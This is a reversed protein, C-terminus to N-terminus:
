LALLYSELDTLEPPSLQSADGHVGAATTAAQNVRASVTLISGDHLYPATRGLGLLSPTNVAQLAPWPTDPTNDIPLGNGGQEVLVVNELLDDPHLTGVNHVQNDTLVDGSHCTSCQAKVFAARGPSTDQTPLVNTHLPNDAAPMGEIFATLNASDTDSLGLKGDTRSGAGGMRGVITETFFDNLQPFISAWHYPATQALARGALSPTQRKGDPFQWVHGDERGDLHCSACALATTSSTMRPDIASFFMRRGLAADSSLTEGALPVTATVALSAVSQGPNASGAPTPTPGTNATTNTPNSSNENKLLSLTHDFQSYVYLTTGDNSLALGDPGAGVPTVLPDPDGAGRSTPLVLVNNSLKNAVYVWNGTADVVAASPGQFAAVAGNRNSFTSRPFDAAATTSNGSSDVPTQACSFSDAKSARSSTDITGLGALVIGNASCGDSVGGGGYTGGGGGGSPDGTASGGTIPGAKQWTHTIYLRNGAPSPTVETAAGATRASPNSEPKPDDATTLDITGATAPTQLDVTPVVGQKLNTVYAQQGVVAVGRPEEGVGVKWVTNLTKTDIATLTGQTPDNLGTASVVLLQTGDNTLSLGAPEVDVPIRKSESVQGQANRALVSVTREGTNSVYIRDDPGVTIRSPSKGVPVSGILAGDSARALLVASNDTDVAYVISGDTSLALSGSAHTYTPKPSSCGALAAGVLAGVISWRKM